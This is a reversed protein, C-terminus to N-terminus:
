SAPSFLCAFRIQRLNVSSYICIGGALGGAVLLLVPLLVSSDPLMRLCGIRHQNLETGLPAGTLGGNKQVRQGREVRAGGVSQDTDKM